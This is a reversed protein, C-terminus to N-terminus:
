MATADPTFDIGSYAAPKLLKPLLKATGASNRCMNGCQNAPKAKAAMAMPAMIGAEIM